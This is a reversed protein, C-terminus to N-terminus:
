AFNLYYVDLESLSKFEHFRIGNKKQIFLLKNFSDNNQMPFDHRYHGGRSEERLLASRLILRSTKLKNQFSIRSWLHQKNFEKLDNSMLREFKLVSKESAILGDGTRKIGANRWMTRSIEFKIDSMKKLDIRSINCIEKEATEQWHRLNKKKKRKKAWAAAKKGARNGFVLTSTMMNGGLRDAGHPGAALEGVAFLGHVQTEGFSDIYVGGNFAHAHHAVEIEGNLLQPSKRCLFKMWESLRLDNKFNQVDNLKAFVSFRQNTRGSDVENQFAHDFYKTALRSTFPGHLARDNILKQEDLWHPIWDSIFPENLNNLPKLGYKFAGQNLVFRFPYCIGFIFQIFEMNYLSAGADLALQYGDGILESSNLNHLYTSAGGGCALITAGSLFLCIENKKNIALAGHCKKGATLLAFIYIDEIIKIKNNKAALQLSTGFKELSELRFTRISSSFCPKSEVSTKQVPYVGAGIKKLYQINEHAEQVLIQALKPICMGQGSKLIDEYHKEFDRDKQFPACGQFGLTHTVPYFSSGTRFANGKTVVMVDVDKSAAVIAAMMGASGSGVILVDTKVINDIIKM